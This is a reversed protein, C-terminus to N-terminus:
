VLSGYVNFVKEKDAPSRGRVILRVFRANDIVEQPLWEWCQHPSSVNVKSWFRAKQHETLTGTFM